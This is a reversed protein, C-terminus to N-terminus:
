GRSIALVATTGTKETAFQVTGFEGAGTTEDFSEWDAQAVVARISITTLTAASAASSGLALLVLVALVSMTRRM